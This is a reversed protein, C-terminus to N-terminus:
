SAFKWSGRSNRCPRDAEPRHKPQIRYNQHLGKMSRSTEMLVVRDLFRIVEDGAHGSMADRQFAPAFSQAYTRCTSRHKPSHGLQRSSATIARLPAQFLAFVISQDSSSARRSGAYVLFPRPPPRCSNLGQGVTSPTRQFSRRPIPNAYEIFEYRTARCSANVTVALEASPAVSLVENNFILQGYTRVKLEQGSQELEWPRLGDGPIGLDEADIM